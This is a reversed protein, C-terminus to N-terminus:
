FHISPLAPAHRRAMERPEVSTAIICVASRPSPSSIIAPPAFSYQALGRATTGVRFETLWSIRSNKWCESNQTPVLRILTYHSRQAWAYDAGRAAQDAGVHPEIPRRHGTDGAHASCM